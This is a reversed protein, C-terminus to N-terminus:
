QHTAERETCDSCEPVVEAGIRLAEEPMRWKGDSCLIKGCGHCIPILRRTEELRRRHVAVTESYLSMGYVFIVYVLLRMAGNEYRLLEHAYPHGSLIDSWTWLAAGILAAIYGGRAGFNFFAMGIPLLYVPFSSVEYGTKWDLLFVAAFLIIIFVISRLPKM